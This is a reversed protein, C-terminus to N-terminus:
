HSSYYDWLGVSCASKEPAERTARITQYVLLSCWLYGSNAGKYDAVCKEILSCTWTVLLLSLFGSGRWWYESVLLLGRSTAETSYKQGFTELIMGCRAAWQCGEARPLTKEECPESRWALWRSSLSFAGSLRTTPLWFVSPCFTGGSDVIFAVMNSPKWNYLVLSTLHSVTM